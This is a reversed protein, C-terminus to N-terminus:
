VLPEKLTSILRALKIAARETTAVHQEKYAHVRAWRLCSIKREGKLPYKTFYAILINICEEKHIELRNYKKLTYGNTVTEIQSTAHVLQKIKNLVELEGDQTIYFKTTFKTYYTGKKAGRFDTLVNTYFGADADSFGSLWADDLSVSCHCPKVIIQLHWSQNLSNLWNLFQIRRKELVLNGNLIHILRIINEKSSTFWKCYQFGNKEFTTVQGFGLSTRIHNILKINDISQVIEFDGRLNLPDFNFFTGTNAIRSSFSGDGEVFGVFWRLFNIDLKKIHKPKHLNYLSFDFLSNISVAERTTESTGKLENQAYTVQQNARGSLNKRIGLM